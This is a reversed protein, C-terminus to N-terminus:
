HLLLPTPECLHRVTVMYWGLLIVPGKALYIGALHVQWSVSPSSKTIPLIWNQSVLAFSASNM